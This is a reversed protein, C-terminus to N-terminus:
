KKRIDIYEGSKKKLLKISNKYSCHESWMVSYISLETFNPMRGMIEQIRDFEEPLLGLEKATEVTVKPELINTSM